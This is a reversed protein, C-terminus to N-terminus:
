AVFRLLIFPVYIVDSHLRTPALSLFSLPLLAPSFCPSLSLSRLVHERQVALDARVFLVLFPRTAVCSRAQISILKAEHNM